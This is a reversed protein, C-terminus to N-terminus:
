AYDRVLRWSVGHKAAFALAATPILERPVRQSHLEHRSHHYHCLAMGNDVNWLEAELGSDKLFSKSLVHHGEIRRLDPEFMLRTYADVPFAHCMHCGYRCVARKWALQM